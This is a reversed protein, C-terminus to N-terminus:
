DSSRAWKGGGCDVVMGRLEMKSLTSLVVSVPLGSARVIKDVHRGSGGLVDFVIKENEGKPLETRAKVQKKEVSAGLDSLLEECGVVPTAGDMILRNTGGSCSSFLSGPVAYVTRGQEAACSATILAGSKKPAETVLVALGLGSIIRNRAPFNGATPPFGLPFESVVAGRDGDVIRQALERNGAPYVRDVGCGLVAVTRGSNNLATRHATSDIGYALGSVITFGRDSLAKVLYKTVRVGYNSCKRTGVVSLALSDEEHLKGRVYLLFPSSPINKLRYPYEKDVIRVLSVGLRRIKELEKELSVEGRTQELSNALSQSVGLSLLERGPLNWIREASGYRDYLKSFSKPGLGRVMSLGVWYKLESTDAAIM